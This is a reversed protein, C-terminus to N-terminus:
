WVAQSNLHVSAMGGPLPDLVPHLHGGHSVSLMSYQWLVIPKTFSVSSYRFSFGKGPAYKRLQVVDDTWPLDNKGGFSGFSGTSSSADGSNTPRHCPDVKWHRMM